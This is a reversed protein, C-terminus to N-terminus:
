GANLSIKEGIMLARSDAGHGVSWTKAVPLDERLPIKQLVKQIGDRGMERELQTFTGLLLGSVKQFVGMEQLQYFFSLLLKEDGGRSELFLIKGEVDPFYETGALKLLCRINGGVVKGEMKEGRLFKVPFEFLTRKGEQFTEQFAKQQQKAYSGELFRVQYLVAKQGTKQHIANLLVTLDSYGFFPKPNKQIVEFDLFPLVENALNGGSIDFIARVESDEYFKQLVKAKEQGGICSGDEPEYLYPSEKTELGMRKLCEKLKEIHEREESPRIDSCAVLAVQNKSKEM